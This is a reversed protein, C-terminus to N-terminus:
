AEVRVSIDAPYLIHEDSFVNLDELREKAIERFKKIEQRNIYTQLLKKVDKVTKESARLTFSGLNRIYDLECHRIYIKLKEDSIKM